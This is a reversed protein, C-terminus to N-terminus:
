LCLDDKRGCFWWVFDSGAVMDCGVIASDGSASVDRVSLSEDLLEYTDDVTTESVKRSLM